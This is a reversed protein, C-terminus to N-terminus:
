NHNLKNLISGTLGIIDIGSNYTLQKIGPTGLVSIVRDFSKNDFKDIIKRFSSINEIHAQLDKMGAEYDDGLIISRAAITGSILSHLAGVGLVRETLGAARGALLINGTRFKTVRGTIFVPPILQFSFQLNHLNEAKLFSNYLELLSQYDKGIAYLGVMASSPNFPTIRAYGTGAYGTNFFITSASKDFAGLAVGGMIIVNGEDKWVGMKRAETDSGSAIVVFDYSGAAEEFDLQYNYTVPTRYLQRLIQNELSEINKGRSMFYGLNGNIEVTNNPSKMIIKKCESLPTFDLKFNEKLYERPDGFKNMIIQPWYTVSPWPWGVSNTREFIEAHAGLRECELACALGTIGAGIIAIRM